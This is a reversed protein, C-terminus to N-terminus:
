SRPPLPPLVSPHIVAPDTCFTIPPSPPSTTIMCATPLATAADGAPRTPDVAHVALWHVVAVSTLHKDDRPARPLVPITTVAPNIERVRDSMMVYSAPTTLLLM